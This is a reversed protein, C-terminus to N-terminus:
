STATQVYTIIRYKGPQFLQLDLSDYLLKGLSPHVIEKRLHFPSTVNHHPWWLGFEPSHTKLEEVLERWSVAEVHEASDSRFHGLVCCAVQSWDAFLERFREDLFTLRVM